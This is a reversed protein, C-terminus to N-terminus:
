VGIAGGRSQDLCVEDLAGIIEQSLRQNKRFEKELDM